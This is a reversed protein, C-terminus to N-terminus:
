AVSTSDNEDLTEEVKTDRFRKVVLVLGVGVLASAAFLAIKRPTTLTVKEAVESVTTAVSQESM